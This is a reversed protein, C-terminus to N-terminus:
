SFCRACCGSVRVVDFEQELQAMSARSLKIGVLSALLISYSMICSLISPIQIKSTSFIDLMAIYFSIKVIRLIM